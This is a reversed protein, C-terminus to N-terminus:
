CTWICSIVAAKELYLSCPVWSFLCICCTHKHSLSHFSRPATRHVILGEV